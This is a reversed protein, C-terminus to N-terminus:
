TRVNAFMHVQSLYIELNAVAVRNEAYEETISNRPKKHAFIRFILKWLRVARGQKIDLFTTYGIAPLKSKSWGIHSIVCKKGGFPCLVPLKQLLKNVPICFSATDEM